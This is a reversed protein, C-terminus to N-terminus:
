KGEMEYKIVRGTEQDLLRRENGDGLQQIEYGAYEGIMHWEQPETM